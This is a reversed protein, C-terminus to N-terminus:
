PIRKLVAVGRKVDIVDLRPLNQTPSALQLTLSRRSPIRSFREVRQILRVANAQELNSIHIPLSTSASNELFFPYTALESRCISRAIFQVVVFRSSACRLPAM